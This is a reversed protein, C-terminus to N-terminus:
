YLRARTPRTECPLVFRVTVINGFQVVDENYIRQGKGPILPQFQNGIQIRTGYSSNTDTLHYERTPEDGVFTAHRRSISREDLAVLVNGEPNYFRGIGFENSPLPIESLNSASAGRLIIMKGVTGDAATGIKASSGHHTPLGDPMTPMIPANPLKSAKKERMTLSMWTLHLIQIAAVVLLAVPIMWALEEINM